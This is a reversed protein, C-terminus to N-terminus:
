KTMPNKELTARIKNVYFVATNAAFRRVLNDSAMFVRLHPWRTLAGGKIGQLAANATSVTETLTAASELAFEKGEKTFSRSIGRITSNLDALTAINVTQFFQPIFSWGMRTIATFHRLSESLKVKDENFVEIGLVRNFAKLGSEIPAGQLAADTLMALGNENNNGFLTADALRQSIRDGYINFRADPSM